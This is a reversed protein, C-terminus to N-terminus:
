IDENLQNRWTKYVKSLDESVRILGGDGHIEGICRFLEAVTPIKSLNQNSPHPIVMSISELGNKKIFSKINVQRTIWLIRKPNVIQIERKLFESCFEFSHNLSSKHTYCKLCDTIYTKNLDLRLIKEFYNYYYKDKKSANKSVYVNYWGFVFGLEGNEEGAGPAEAIVMTDVDNINSYFPLDQRNNLSPCNEGRKCLSCKDSVEGKIPFTSSIPTEFNFGEIKLGFIDRYLERLDKSKSM